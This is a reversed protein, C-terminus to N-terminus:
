RKKIKEHYFYSGYNLKNKQCYKHIEKELEEWYGMDKKSYIERYLPLLDGHYAAIYKLVRARFAGWLNLNEFYFADTYAKCENIIAKFDTIMPFIPSIFVWTNIKAEHLKKLANIRKEISSARPEIKKRIGDDLTNMSIGIRVAPLKRFLEIDRIVLDSKTLIEIKVDSNIFQELLEKTKNYKKEFPNYADTASSFNVTTNKLKRVNLKKHYQKVDLFDGWEENHNTFRKLYEAYCYICKHPCGIYPNIVYDAAPIKTKTLLGKVEIENVTIM